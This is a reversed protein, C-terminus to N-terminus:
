EKNIKSSIFALQKEYFERELEIEIPLSYSNGFRELAKTIYSPDALSVIDEEIGGGHGDIYEVIHINDEYFVIKAINANCAHGM